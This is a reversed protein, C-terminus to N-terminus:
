RSTQIMLMGAESELINAATCFITANALSCHFDTPINGNASFLQLFTDFVKLIYSGNLNLKDAHGSPQVVIQFEDVCLSHYDFYVNHIVQPNHYWHNTVEGARYESMCQEFNNLIKIAVNWHRQSLRWQKVVLQTIEISKKCSSPSWLMMSVNCYLNQVVKSCHMNSYWAPIFIYM